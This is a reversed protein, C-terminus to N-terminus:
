VKYKIRSLSFVDYVKYIQQLGAKMQTKMVKEIMEALDRYVKTLKTWTHENSLKIELYHAKVAYCYLLSNKLSM